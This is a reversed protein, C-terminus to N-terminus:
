GCKVGRVRPRGGSWGPNMIIQSMLEVTGGMPGQSCLFEVRLPGTARRKCCQVLRRTKRAGPYCLDTPWGGVLDTLVVGERM